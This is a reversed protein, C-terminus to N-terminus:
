ENVTVKLEAQAYGTPEMYLMEEANEEMVLYTFYVKLNYVGAPAAELEEYTEQLKSWEMDAIYTGDDAYLMHTYGGFGEHSVIAGVPLTFTLEEDPELIGVRMDMTAPALRDEPIVFQLGNPYLLLAEPTEYTGSGKSYAITKSGTNKITVTVPFFSGGIIARRDLIVASMELGKYENLTLNKLVLEELYNKELAGNAAENANTVDEETDAETETAAENETGKNRACGTMFALLGVLLIVKWKKMIIM